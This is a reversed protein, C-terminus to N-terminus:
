RVAYARLFMDIASQLHQAREAATLPECLGCMLRSHLEGKVLTFFQQAAIHADPLDLEGAAAHSALFAGFAAHTRAPGAEWFIRRLGEDGNGPALLMRHISLAEESSVMDFFATAIRELQQRLSGRLDDFEFLEDPMLDRCKSQIAEAFLHEKDGFHSYVTLKSVGAEGAIQDMSTGAFGDRLFLTKAAELIASRKALDKPRGPGSPSKAEPHPNASIAQGSM